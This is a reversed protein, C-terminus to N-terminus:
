IVKQLQDLADIGKNQIVAFRTLQSVVIAHRAGQFLNVLKPRFVDDNLFALVPRYQRSRLSDEDRRRIWQFFNAIRGPGAIGKDASQESIEGATAPGHILMQAARNDM